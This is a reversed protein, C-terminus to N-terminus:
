ETEVSIYPWRDTNAELVDKRFAETARNLASIKEKSPKLDAPVIITIWVAPSGDSAEGYRFRVRKIDESLPTWKRAIEHFLQAEAFSAAEPDIEDM